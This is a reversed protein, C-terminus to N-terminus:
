HPLLLLLFFTNPVLRSGADAVQLQWLSLHKFEEFRM